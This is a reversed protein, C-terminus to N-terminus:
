RQLVHSDIAMIEALDDNGGKTDSVSDSRNSAVSVDHGDSNGIVANAKSGPRRTKNIGETASHDDLGTRLQSSWQPSYLGLLYRVAVDLTWDTLPFFHGFIEYHCRHIFLRRGGSTVVGVNKRLTLIETPEEAWKLPVRSRQAPDSWILLDYWTVNDFYTEILVDNLANVLNLESSITTLWVTINVRLKRCEETTRLLLRDIWPPTAAQIIGDESPMAKSATGDSRLVVYIAYDFSPQCDIFTEVNKEKETSQRENAGSVSRVADDKHIPVEIDNDERVSGQIERLGRVGNDERISGHIERPDTVVDDNDTEISSETAEQVLFVGIVPRIGSYVQPNGCNICTRSILEIRRVSIQSRNLRLVSTHSDTGVVVYEVLSSRQRGIITGLFVVLILGALCLAAFAFPYSRHSLCRRLLWARVAM